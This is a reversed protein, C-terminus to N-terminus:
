ALLAHWSHFPKNCQGQLHVPAHFAFHRSAAPAMCMHRRHYLYASMCPMCRIIQLMRDVHPEYLSYPPRANKIGSDERHLYAAVYNHQILLLLAQRVQSEPLRAGRVIEPLTQIGKATLHRCVDAVIDGHLEKVLQCAFAVAHQQRQAM